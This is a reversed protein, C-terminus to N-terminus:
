KIPQNKDVATSDTKTEGADQEVEEPEIGFVRDAADQGSKFDAKLSDTYSSACGSFGVSIVFLMGMVLLGWLFMKGYQRLKNIM